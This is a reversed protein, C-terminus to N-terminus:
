QAIGKPPLLRRGRAFQMAVVDAEPFAIWGANFSCVILDAQTLRRGLRKEICNFCLLTDPDDTAISHWLADHLMPGAPVPQICDQCCERMEDGVQKFHRSPGFLEQMKQHLPNIGTKAEIERMTACVLDIWACTFERHRESEEYEFGWHSTASLLGRATIDVTGDPRQRFEDHYNPRMPDNWINWMIHGILERHNDHFFVRAVERSNVVLAGDLESLHLKLEPALAFVPDSPLLKVLDATM